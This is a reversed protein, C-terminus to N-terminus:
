WSTRCISRRITQVVQTVNASSHGLTVQAAELGFVKRIETGATHRLQNPTWHEVGARKAAREIARRYAATEYGDGPKRKPTTVRRDQLETRSTRSLRRKRYHQENSEDPRFCYSQADRLLYPSLLEQGRPGIPVIRSKGHHENKNVEPQFLWIESSRDIDVPKVTCVEIPRMGTLRQLRVMDAVIPGLQDCTADIVADEVPKVADTERAESRGRQLHRVSALGHHLHPPVLEESCAWKFFRVIRNTYKNCTNRALGQDVFLQRVTKLKKPGFDAAESRGYLRRM